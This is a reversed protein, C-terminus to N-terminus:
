YKVNIVIIVNRNIRLHKLKLDVVAVVVFVVGTMLNADSEDDEDDLRV